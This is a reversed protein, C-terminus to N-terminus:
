RVLTRLYSRVVCYQRNPITYAGSDHVFTGGSYMVGYQIQLWMNELGDISRQYKAIVPVHANLRSILRTSQGTSWTETYINSFLVMRSWVYSENATPAARLEPPNGLGWYPVLPDTPSSAYRVIRMWVAVLYSESLLDAWSYNLRPVLSLMVDGRTSLATNSLEPERYREADYSTVGDTIPFNSVTLPILVSQGPTMIWEDVDPYEWSEPQVVWDAKGSRRM